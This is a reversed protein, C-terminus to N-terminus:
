EELQGYFSALYSSGNVVDSSVIGGVGQGASGVINGALTAPLTTGMIPGIEVDSSSLATTTKNLAVTASVFQYNETAGTIQGIPSNDSFNITMNFEGVERSQTDTGSDIALIEAIGSYTASGQPLSNAVTGAVLYANGNEGDSLFVRAVYNSGSNNLNLGDIALTVTQGSAGEASRLVQFHNASIYTEINEFNTLTGNELETILSEGGALGVFVEDTDASFKRIISQGDAYTTLTQLDSPVTIGEPETTTAPTTVPTTTTTGGSSPISIGTSNTTQTTSTDPTTPADVTVPETGGGCAATMLILVGLYSFRFSM